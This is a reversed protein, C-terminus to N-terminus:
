KVNSAAQNKMVPVTIIIKNIDLLSEFSFDVYYEKMIRKIFSISNLITKGDKGTNENFLNFGIGTDQILV